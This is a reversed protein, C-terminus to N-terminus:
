PFVWPKQLLTRRRAFHHVIGFVGLPVRFIGYDGPFVRPVRSLRRLIRRLYTRIRGMDVGVHGADAVGPWLQRLRDALGDQRQDVPALSGFGFCCPGATGYSPWGPDNNAEFSLFLQGYEERVRAAQPRPDADTAAVEGALWSDAGAPATCLLPPLFRVGWRTCIHTVASRRTRSTSGTLM